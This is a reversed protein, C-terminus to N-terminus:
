VFKMEPQNVCIEEHDPSWLVEFNELLDASSRINKLHHSPGHKMYRGYSIDRGIKKCFKDGHSCRAVTYHVEGTEHKWVYAITVAIDQNTRSRLHLFRVREGSVTEREM